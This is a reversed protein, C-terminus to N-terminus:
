FPIKDKYARLLRLSLGAQSRDYLYHIHLVDGRLFESMRPLHTMYGVRILPVGSLNSCLTILHDSRGSNGYKLSEKLIDINVKNELIHKIAAQSFVNHEWEHELLDLRTLDFMEAYPSNDVLSLYMDDMPRNHKRWFILRKENSTINFKEKYSFEADLRNVLPSVNNSSDDDVKMFWRCSDMQKSTMNAFFDYTKPANHWFDCRIIETDCEWNNELEPIDENGALLFVKVRKDRINILGCEKFKDLRTSYDEHRKNTISCISGSVCLIFSIDYM